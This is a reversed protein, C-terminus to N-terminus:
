EVEQILDPWNADVYDMVEQESPLTRTFMKKSTDPESIVAGYGRGQKPFTTCVFGNIKRWQNGKKSTQWKTSNHQFMPAQEKETPDIGSMAKKVRTLAESDTRADWDIDNHMYDLPVPSAIFTLGLREQKWIFGHTLGFATPVHFVHVEGVQTGDWDIQKSTAQATLLDATLDTMDGPKVSASHESFPTSVKWGTFKGPARYLHWKKM